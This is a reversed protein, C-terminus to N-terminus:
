ERDIDFFVYVKRMLFPLGEGRLKEEVSGDLTLGSSNENKKHRNYNWPRQLLEQSLPYM